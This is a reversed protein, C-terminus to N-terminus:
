ASEFSPFELVVTRDFESNDGEELEMRGGRVLFRGGYRAVVEPTRATYQSYVEPDNVKIRAILYAAM